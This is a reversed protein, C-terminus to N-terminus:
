FRLVECSLVKGTENSNFLFVSIKIFYEIFIFKVAKSALKEDNIHAYVTCDFIINLFSYDYRNYRIM